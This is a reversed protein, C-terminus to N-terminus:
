LEAGGKDARRQAFHQASVQCGAVRVDRVAQGGDQLQDFFPQAWRRAATLQQLLMGSQQMAFGLAQVFAGCAGFVLDRRHVRMQLAHLLPEGLM